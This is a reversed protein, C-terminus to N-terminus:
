FFFFFSTAFFLESIKRTNENYMCKYKFSTSLIDAFVVMKKEKRREEPSSINSKSLKVQM